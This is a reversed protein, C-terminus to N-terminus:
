VAAGPRYCASLLRAATLDGGVVQAIVTGRSFVLARSCIAAIDDHQSSAVVVATGRRACNQLEAFIAQRAGVDVGNSPEDLLLLKPNQEIWRGLLAKQQNGGSLALLPLNPRGPRVDFRTLVGEVAIREARRDIGWPRRLSALSPLSVNERVTATLVGSDRQRNAPLLAIGARRSRTPNAHKLARGDLTITGAVMEAAGYILYPLEEHGAGLLGTLGVIEGPSVELNVDRCVEGTVAVCGLIPRDRTVTPSRDL